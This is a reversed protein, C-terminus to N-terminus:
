RFGGTSDIVQGTIWQADDGALWAVLRAADSPQGWRGQPFRRLLEEYLAPGAWGTDTAGPNVANVTIGRSALHAALSATLQHLAGKSAVYALEGPMPGRHQGSIMLVVRGAARGDHQAAFAQVLLLSGRVNIALHRDIEEASLDELAGGSWHTHNVVLADVHGLADRARALLSAPEAPDGLDAELAAVRTGRHGIERALEDLGGPDAGWARAADAAPLGQICVDAGLAALRDAVAFGIGRRRSVGTVLATRGGLPDAEPM